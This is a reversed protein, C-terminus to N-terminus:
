TQITEANSTFILLCERELKSPQELFFELRVNPFDASNIITMQSQEDYIQREKTHCCGCGM